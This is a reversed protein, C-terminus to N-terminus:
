NAGKPLRIWNICTMYISRTNPGNKSLEKLLMGSTKLQRDSVPPHDLLYAAIM